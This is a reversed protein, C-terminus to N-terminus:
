VAIVLSLTVTLISPAKNMLITSGKLADYLISLGKSDILSKARVTKLDSIPLIFNSLKNWSLDAKFIAMLLATFSPLYLKEIAIQKKEWGFRRFSLIFDNM